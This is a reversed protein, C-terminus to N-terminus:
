VSGVSFVSRLGLRTRELANVFVIFDAVVRQRPNPYFVVTIGDNSPVVDVMSSVDAHESKIM